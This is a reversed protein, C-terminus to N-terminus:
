WIPIKLHQWPKGMLKAYKVTHYTGGKLIGNWVALLLDSNDVMYEDRILLADIPDVESGCVVVVKAACDLITKYREQADKPWIREQGIFPVCAIYPIGLDYCIAAAIQDVGQAMGTLACSPRLEELKSYLLSCIERQYPWPLHYGGLKNPRHGTFSVIM